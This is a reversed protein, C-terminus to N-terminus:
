GLRGRIEEISQATALDGAYSLTAYMTPDLGESIPLKFNKLYDLVKLLYNMDEKLYRIELGRCTNSKDLEDYTAPM